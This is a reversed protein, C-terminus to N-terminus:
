KRKTEDFLRALQFKKPGAGIRHSRTYVFKYFFISPRIMLKVISTPENKVFEPRISVSVPQASYKIGFSSTANRIGYKNNNFREEM